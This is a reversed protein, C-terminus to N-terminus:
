KSACLMPLASSFSVEFAVGLQAGPKPGGKGSQWYRAFRPSQDGASSALVQAAARVGAVGFSCQDAETLCGIPATADDQACCRQDGAVGPCGPATAISTRTTHIRSFNGVVNRVAGLGSDSRYGGFQNYQHLNYVRGDRRNGPFQAM